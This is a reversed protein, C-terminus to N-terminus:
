SVGAVKVGARADLAVGLARVWESAEVTDKAAKDGQSATVSCLSALVREVEPKLARAVRPGWEEAPGFGSLVQREYEAPAWGWIEAPNRLRLPAEEKETMAPLNGLAANARRLLVGFLYVSPLDEIADDLTAHEEEDIDDRLRRVSGLMRASGNESHMTASAIVASELAELAEHLAERAIYEAEQDASDVASPVATPPQVLGGVLRKVLGEFSMLAHTAPDYTSGRPPSPPRSAGRSPLLTLTSTIKALSPSAVVTPTPEKGLGSLARQVSGPSPTRNLVPFTDHETIIRMGRWVLAVVVKAVWGEGDHGCPAAVSEFVKRAGDVRSAFQQLCCPVALQRPQGSGSLEKTVRITGNGSKERVLPVPQASAPVTAPGAPAKHAVGNTKSLSSELDVKLALLLPRVVKGVVLDLKDMTPRLTDEVFRPYNGTELMQELRECTEWATHAISVAFTQTANLPASHATPTLNFPSNFLPDSLAPLLLSDLRGVYISLSRVATRLIARLLYTDTPLPPLESHTDIFDFAM